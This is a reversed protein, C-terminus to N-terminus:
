QGGVKIGLRELVEARAPNTLEVHANDKICREITWGHDLTGRHLVVADDKSRYTVYEYVSSFVYTFVGNPSRLVRTNFPKPIDGRLREIAANIWAIEAAVLDSNSSAINELGKVIEETTM